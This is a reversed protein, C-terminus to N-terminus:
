LNITVIPSIKIITGVMNYINSYPDNPVFQTPNYHYNPQEYSPNHFSSFNQCIYDVHVYSGCNGCADYRVDRANMSNLQADNEFRRSSADLRSVILDLSDEEYIKIFSIKKRKRELFFFLCSWVLCFLFFYRGLRVVWHDLELLLEGAVTGFVQYCGCTIYFIVLDM